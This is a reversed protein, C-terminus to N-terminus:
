EKIEECLKDLGSKVRRQILDHEDGAAPFVSLLEAVAAAKDV